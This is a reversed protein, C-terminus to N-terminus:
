KREFFRVVRDKLDKLVMDSDQLRRGKHTLYVEYGGGTSRRATRDYASSTIHGVVEGDVIVEIAGTEKDKKSFLVLAESIMETVLEKRALVMFESDKISAAMNKIWGPAVDHKLDEPKKVQVYGSGPLFKRILRQYLSIRSQEKKTSSFALFKPKEQEVVTKLIKIVTAFIRLADGGGTIEYKGERHFSVIYTEPGGWWEFNVAVHEQEDTKFEVDFDKGDKTFKFKYPTSLVEDLKM